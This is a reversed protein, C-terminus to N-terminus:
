DEDNYINDQETRPVFSVDLAQFASILDKNITKRGTIKTIIQSLDDETVKYMPKGMLDTVKHYYITM